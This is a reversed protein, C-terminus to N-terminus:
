QGETKSESEEGKGAGTSNGGKGGRDKGRMGEGTGERNGPKGEGCCDEWKKGTM